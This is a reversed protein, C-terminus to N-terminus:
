SLVARCSDCSEDRTVLFQDLARPFIESSHGDPIGALVGLARITAPDSGDYQQALGFEKMAEITCNPCLLESSFEYAVIKM